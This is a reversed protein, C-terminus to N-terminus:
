SACTVTDPAVFDASQIVPHEQLVARMQAYDGAELPAVSQAERSARSM